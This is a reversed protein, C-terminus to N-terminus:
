DLQEAMAVLVARAEEITTAEHPFAIRFLSDAVRLDMGESDIGVMKATADLDQHGSDKLYRRLADAHDRNMHGSIQKEVERSFPNNRRIRSADFWRATAFGGNWHFRVPMFRFFRFGLEDHYARTQPFYDFYRETDPAVPDPWM